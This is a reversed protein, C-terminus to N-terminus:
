KGGSVAFFIVLVAIAAALGIALPRRVRSFSIRHDEGVDVAVVAEDLPHSLKLRRLWFLAAIVLPASVVLMLLADGVPLEDPSQEALGTLLIASSAGNQIAHALMSPFISGTWIRLLGFVLGLAFLAVISAPNFHVLAFLASTVLVAGKAGYRAGLIRMLYGRFLLEEGIPALIVVGVVLLIGEGAGPTEFLRGVDFRKAIEPGVALRNLANLAGSAFFGVVAAAIVPAWALPSPARIALFPRPRFNMARVMLLTLGAFIFLEDFAIGFSPNAAQVFSGVSLHIVLVVLLFAYAPRSAVWDADTSLLNLPAFNKM